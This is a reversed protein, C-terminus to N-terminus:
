EAADALTGAARTGDTADATCATGRTAPTKAAGVPEPAGGRGERHLVVLACAATLAMLVLMLLQGRDIADAPAAGAVALSIVALGVAGGVQHAVNVVGSAAGSDEPAAGAVGAVTLPSMIMGQGAGILLMPLAVGPLYGGEIGVLWGVLLGAADTLCGALLVRANSFRFTLRSVFLSVVFQVVTLPLFGLASLLPSFGYVQQMATPMMFFYSMSAGLMLFRAAYAASRGSDAFLSLPTVPNSVRSEVLVFGALAVVAVAAALGRLVTGDIAYVLASFGLVSLVSGWWDVRSVGGDVRNPILRATLVILAVGVPVDLFFGYRWSAYSAIVGGVVMGLSSGIGAVAGYAAIARTRTRGEYTDILLALTAPTLLASGIGQLARMAILVGASPALGVLLSAITFVVLGALFLKRRGLIDGLRGGLLLLGGFTLAYANSVWAVSVSDMGLERSISLSSTFVISNNLLILFYALLVIPLVVGFGRTGTEGSTGRGASANGESVMTQSM